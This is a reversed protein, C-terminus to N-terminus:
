QQVELTKLEQLLSERETILDLVRQHPENGNMIDIIVRAESMAKDIEILRNKIEEIRISNIDEKPLEDIWKQTPKLLISVNGKVEWKGYENEIIM